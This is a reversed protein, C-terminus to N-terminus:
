CLRKLWWWIRACFDYQLAGHGDRESDLCVILSSFLKRVLFQPTVEERTQTILPNGTQPASPKVFSQTISTGEIRRKKYRALNEDDDDFPDYDDDTKSSSAPPPTLTPTPEPAAPSPTSSAPSASRPVYFASEPISTPQAPGPNPNANPNRSPPPGM